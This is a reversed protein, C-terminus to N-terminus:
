PGLTCNGMGVTLVKTFDICEELPYNFQDGPAANALPFMKMVSPGVAPFFVQM